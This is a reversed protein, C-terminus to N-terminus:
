TDQMTIYFRRLAPASWSAPASKSRGKFFPAAISETHVDRDIYHIIKNM